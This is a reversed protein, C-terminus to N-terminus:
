NRWVDKCYSWKNHRPFCASWTCIACTDQACFAHAQMAPLPVELVTVHHSMSTMTVACAFLTFQEKLRLSETYILITGNPKLANCIVQSLSGSMARHHSVVQDPFLFVIIRTVHAYDVAHFKLTYLFEAVNCNKTVHACTRSHTMEICRSLVTVTVPLLSHAIDTVKHLWRRYKIHSGNVASFQSAGYTHHSSSIKLVTWWNLAENQM